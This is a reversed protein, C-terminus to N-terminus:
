PVSLLNSFHPFGITQSTGMSHYSAELERFAVWYIQFVVQGFAVILCSVSGFALM